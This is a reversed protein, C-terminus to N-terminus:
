ACCSYYDYAGSLNVDMVSAVNDLDQEWFPANAAVAFSVNNILVDIPPASKLSKAQLRM